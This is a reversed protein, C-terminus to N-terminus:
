KGRPLTSPGFPSRVAKDLWGGIAGQRQTSRIFLQANGLQMYLTKCGCSSRVFHWPHTPATSSGEARCSPITAQCFLSAHRWPTSGLNHLVRLDACSLGCIPASCSSAICKPTPNDSRHALHCAGSAGVTHRLLQQLSACGINAAEHRPPVLSAHSCRSPFRVCVSAGIASAFAM